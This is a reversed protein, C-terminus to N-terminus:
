DEKLQFAVLRKETLIKKEEESLKILDRDLVGAFIIEKRLIEQTQEDVFTIHADRYETLKEGNKIKEFFEHKIPLKM